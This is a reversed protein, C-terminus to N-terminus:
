KRRSLDIVNGQTPRKRISVPERRVAGTSSQRITPNNKNQSIKKNKKRKFNRRKRGRSIAIWAILGGMCLVFGVIPGIISAKDGFSLAEFGFPEYDPIIGKPLVSLNLDGTRVVKEEKYVSYKVKYGGPGLHTPLYVAVRTIDFPAIKEIKGINQATELLKDTKRDHINFVVKSPAVPANGTNEVHMFFTIRGPYDLWWKKHGEQTERLEVRRVEFDYIYDAVRIAVDVQAGLAISVGSKKGLSSTRIRISGVYDGYEAEEPVRVIVKIPVQHEGKPLIFQTGRDISFWGTADPINLTIDVQLDEVPDGRVLIIEQVYESGQTLTDSRVYPPTVGFGALATEAGLFLTVIIIIVAITKKMVDITTM